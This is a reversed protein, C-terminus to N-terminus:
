HPGPRKARSISWPCSSDALGASGARKLSARATEGPFDRTAPRRRALRQTSRAEILGPGNRGPFASTVLQILGPGAPFKGALALGEPGAEILGPGNRGPFIRRDSQLRM